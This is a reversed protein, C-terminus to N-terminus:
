DSPRHRLYDRVDRISDPFATEQLRDMLWRPIFPIGPDVKAIYYVQCKTPGKPVIQLSGTYELVSGDIRRYVFSYREPQLQTENTVWREGIPWPFDMYVNVNLTDGERRLIRASKLRFIQPYHQYDTYAHFVASAPAEVQGVIMLRKLPHDTHEVHVIVDGQDVRAQEDDSLANFTDQAWAVPTRLMSAAVLGVGLMGGIALRLARVWDGEEAVVRGGGVGTSGMM